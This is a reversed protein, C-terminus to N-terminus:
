QEPGCTVFLANPINIHKSAAKVVESKTANAISDFLNAYYNSSINQNHVIKVKELNSFLEDCSKAILGLTYSKSKDFIDDGFNGKILTQHEKKIEELVLEISHSKIESSLNLTSYDAKSSLSTSIGYTLGKEERINQMLLSGFYGGYIMNAFLVLPFEKHNKGVCTVKGKLATQVASPFLVHEHFPYNDSYEPKLLLAKTGQPVRQSVEKHLWEIDLSSGSIYVTCGSKLTQNHFLQITETSLTDIESVSLSDKSLSDTYFLEKLRKSCLYPPKKLNQSLEAKQKTKFVSLKEQPFNANQIADLFITFSPKILEPTSYLSVTLSNSNADTGYFAGLSDLENLIQAEDKEKTGSFLLSKLASLVPKAQQHLSGTNFVLDIRCVPESIPIAILNSKSNSIPIDIKPLLAQRVAPSVGRNPSKIM